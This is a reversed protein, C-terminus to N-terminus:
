IIADIFHIVPKSSEEKTKQERSLTAAIRINVYPM